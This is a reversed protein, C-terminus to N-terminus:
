ISYNKASVRKVMLHIVGIYVMAESSRPNHEYDKSLRRRFNFWGFTREVIWRKPLVKFGHLENRKVIEITWYFMSFCWAILKGTYDGDAFITKLKQYKKAMKILRTSVATAM